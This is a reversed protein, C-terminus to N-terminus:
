PAHAQTLSEQQEQLRGLVQDVAEGQEIATCALSAASHLARARAADRISQLYTEISPRDPVGILLEALYAAGGISELKGTRDLEETLTVLDVAKKQARMALSTRVIERHASLYFDEIRSHEEVTALHKEDVLMAGLVGRESGIASPIQTTNGSM